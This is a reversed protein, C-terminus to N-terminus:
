IKSNSMRSDSTNQTMKPISLKWGYGELNICQPSMGKLIYIKVMRQLNDKKAKNGPPPAADCRKEGNPNQKPKKENTPSNCSSWIDKLGSGEM